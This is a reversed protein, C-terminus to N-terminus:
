VGQDPQVVECHWQSQVHSGELLFYVVEGTAFPLSAPGHWRFLVLLLASSWAAVSIVRAASWTLSFLARQPVKISMKVAPSAGSVPTTPADSGSSDQGRTHQRLGRQPGAPAVSRQAAGRPLPAHPREGAPIAGAGHGCDPGVGARAGASQHLSFHRCLAAVA